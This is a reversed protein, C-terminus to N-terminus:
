AAQEMERSKIYSEEDVEVTVTVRAGYWRLGLQEILRAFYAEFQRPPLDYFTTIGAREHTKEIRTLLADVKGPGLQPLDSKRASVGSTPYILKLLQNEQRYRQFWGRVTDPRLKRL